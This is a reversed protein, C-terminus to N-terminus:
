SNQITKIRAIDGAQITSDDVLSLILAAARDSQSEIIILEGISQSGRNVLCVMGLRLGQELGGNILVVDAALTSEVGSIPAANPSYMSENVFVPAEASASLAAALLGTFLFSSLM